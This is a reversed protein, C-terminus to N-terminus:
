RGRGVGKRSQRRADIAILEYRVQAIAQHEYLRLMGARAAPRIHRRTALIRIVRHLPADVAEAIKGATLM